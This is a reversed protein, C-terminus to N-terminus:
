RNYAKNILWATMPYSIMFGIITLKRSKPIPSNMLLRFNSRLSKLLEKKEKSYKVKDSKYNASQALNVLLGFDARARNMKAKAVIESSCEKNEAIKVVLDWAKLLDFNRNGFKSETTGAENVYYDYVVKTSYVVKESDVAISFITPVDEDTMGEPFPNNLVLEKKFLKAWPYQMNVQTNIKFFMDLFEDRTLVKEEFDADPTVDDVNLPRCYEATIFDAENKKLLNYLYEVCDREIWDDSDVFMIYEGSTKPAAYNRASSQGGNDKHYVTVRNDKKAWEDAMKGSLDPSGDDVLVVELNRYTQNLVSELCRDLYEEVKYVPIIVSILPQGM